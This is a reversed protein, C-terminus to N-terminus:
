SNRDGNLGTWEGREKAHNECLAFSRSFEFFDFLVMFEFPVFM